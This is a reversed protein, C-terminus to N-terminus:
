MLGFGKHNEKGCYRLYLRIIVSVTKLPQTTPTLLSDKWLSYQLLRSEQAPCLFM